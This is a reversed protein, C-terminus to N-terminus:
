TENQDGTSSQQHPGPKQNEGVRIINKSAILKPRTKQMWLPARIFSDGMNKGMLPALPAMYPIGFSRLSCLHLIMIMLGCTVGYFGMVAALTM